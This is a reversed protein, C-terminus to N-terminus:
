VWDIEQWLGGSFTCNRLIRHQFFSIRIRLDFTEQDLSLDNKNTHRLITLKSQLLLKSFTCCGFSSYPIFIGIRFSKRISSVLHKLTMYWINFKAIIRLITNKSICIQVLTPLLKRPIIKRINYSSNNQDWHKIM